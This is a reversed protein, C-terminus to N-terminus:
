KSECLSLERVVDNRTLSPATSAQQPASPTEGSALLWFKVTALEAQLATQTREIAVLRNNHTAVQQECALLMVTLEHM